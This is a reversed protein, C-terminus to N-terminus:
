CIRHVTFARLVRLHREMRSLVGIRVGIRSSGSANGRPVVGARHNILAAARVARMRVVVTYRRGFRRAATRM